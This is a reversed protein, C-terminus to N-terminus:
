YNLDVVILISDDKQTEIEFTKIEEVIKNKLEKAPLHMNSMIIRELGEEGFKNRESDFIEYIGDTFLILKDSRTIKIREQKYEADKYICLPICDNKLKQLRKTSPSLLYQAPHGASTFALEEKAPDIWATFATFFMNDLFLPQLENNIRLFLDDPSQANPLQHQLSLKFTISLLAAHLSHGSGDAILFMTRGDPLSKIDYIDGGIRFAFASYLGIQSDWKEPFEEQIIKKQIKASIELEYEIETLARMLQRSLSGIRKRSQNREIAYIIVRELVHADVLGKVLYDQAGEQVARYALEEDVVGTLVIIATEPAIEKTKRVTDLGSTDPLSIDLVIVDIPNDKIAQKIQALCTIHHIEIFIKETESLAEKILRADGPNDEILLINVKRSKFDM